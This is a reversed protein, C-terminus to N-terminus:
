LRPSYSIDIQINAGAAKGAGASVMLGCHLTYLGEATPDNDDEYLINLGTSQLYWQNAVAIRKGSTAVDINVFERFSDVDIDVNAHGSDKWLWLTYFMAEQAQINVGKITIKNTTLGVIDEYEIANLAIAETFHADKDSSLTLVGESRDINVIGLGGSVM